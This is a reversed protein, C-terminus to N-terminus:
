RSPQAGLLSSSRRGTETLADASSSGDSLSISLLVPQSVQVAGGPRGRGAPAADAPAGHERVRGSLRCCSRAGAAAAAAALRVARPAAVRAAGGGSSRRTTAAAPGRTDAAAATGGSTAARRAALRAAATLRVGALCNIMESPRWSGERAPCFQTHAPAALQQECMGQKSGHPSLVACEASVCASIRSQCLLVDGTRM